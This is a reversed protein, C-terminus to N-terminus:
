VRPSFVASPLFLPYTEHASAISSLFRYLGFRCKACDDSQRRASLGVKMSIRSCTVPSHLNSQSRLPVANIARDIARFLASRECLVCTRSVVVEGRAVGKLHIPIFVNFRCFSRFDTFICQSGTVVSRHLSCNSLLHLLEGINVSDFHVCTNDVYTCMHVLTRACVSACTNYIICGAELPPLPPPFDLGM